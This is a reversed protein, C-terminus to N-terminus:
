TGYVQFTYLSYGWQTARTTGYIRVYRGSGTLGTNDDEGGNGGHEQLPDVHQEEDFQGGALDVDDTDGRVRGAVPNRLLGPVQQHAEILPGM